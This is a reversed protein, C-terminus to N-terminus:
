RHQNLISPQNCGQLAYRVCAGERRARVHEKGERECMSRGKGRVCSGERRACAHQKGERVFGGGKEGVCAGERRELVHEKGERGCISRRKECVCAGECLM